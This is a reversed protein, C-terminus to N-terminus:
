SSSLLNPYHYYSEEIYLNHCIPSYKPLRISSRVITYLIHLGSVVCSSSHPHPIVVAFHPSQLRSSYPTSENLQLQPSCYWRISYLYSNPTSGLCYSHVEPGGASSLNSCRGVVAPAAFTRLVCACVSRINGRESGVTM